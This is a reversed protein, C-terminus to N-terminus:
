QTPDYFLEFPNGEVMVALPVPRLDESGRIGSMACVLAVQNLDSKRIASVLALDGAHHAKKLTEFNAIYGETLKGPKPVEGPQLEAEADLQQALFDALADDSQQNSVYDLLVALKHQITWGGKVAAEDLVRDAAM